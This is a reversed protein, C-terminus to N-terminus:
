SQPVFEFSFLSILCKKDKEIMYELEVAQRTKSNLEHFDDM